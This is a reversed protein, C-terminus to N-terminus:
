YDVNDFILIYKIKNDKTGDSYYICEDIRFGAKTVSDIYADNSSGFEFLQTSSWVYDIVDDNSTRSYYLEYAHSLNCNFAEVSYDTVIVKYIPINDVEDFLEIQKIVPEYGDANYFSLTDLDLVSIKNEHRLILKNFAGGTLEVLSGNENKFLKINNGNQQVLLENETISNTPGEVIPMRKFEGIKRKGM